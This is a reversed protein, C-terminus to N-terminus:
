KSAKVRQLSANLHQKMEEMEFTHEPAKMQEHRRLIEEQQANSLEAVEVDNSAVSEELLRLFAARGILPLSKFDTILKAPSRSM